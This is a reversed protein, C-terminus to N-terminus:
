MFLEKITGYARNIEILKKTAEEQEGLSRHRIRDPHLGRVLMKYQKKIQSVPASPDLGLTRFATLLEPHIRFIIPLSADPEATSEPEEALAQGSEDLTFKKAPRVFRPPRRSQKAFLARISRSLRFIFAKKISPKRTFIEKEFFCDFEKHCCM